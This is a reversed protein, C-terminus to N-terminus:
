ILNKDWSLVVYIKRTRFVNVYKVKFGGAILIPEYYEKFPPIGKESIILQSIAVSTHKRAIADQVRRCIVRLTISKNDKM